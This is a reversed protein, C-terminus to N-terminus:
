ILPRNLTSQNDSVVVGTVVPNTTWAAQTPQADAVVIVATSYVVNNNKQANSIAYLLTIQSVFISIAFFSAFLALYWGPLMFWDFNWSYTEGEYEVTQVAFLFSRYSWTTVFSSIMLPISVVLMVIAVCRLRQLNIKDSRVICSASLMCILMIISFTISSSIAGQASKLSTCEDSDDSFYDCNLDLTDSYSLPVYPENPGAKCQLSLNVSVKFMGTRLNATGDCLINEPKIEAKAWETELNFAIIMFLFVLFALFNYFGIHAQLSM